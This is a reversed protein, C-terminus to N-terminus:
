SRKSTSTANDARMEWCAAVFRVAGNDVYRDFEPLVAELVRTRTADDSDQLLRGVPGLLTLYQTLANAPFACPVDIARLDVESWGASALIAATQKADAFAFQGPGGRRPPLNPLLPRAAREAATLFPNDEPSRWALCRLAAGPAAARRLNAFAEIPDAFFMVGFRSIILDVSAPDFQYTQAAACGFRASSQDGARARAVAIMPESIDIGIASGGPAATRAAAITTSGTGCGVDLVRRAGTEAVATTLVDELPQFAHDLLQQSEIWGSAGLGNWLKRQEDLQTTSM